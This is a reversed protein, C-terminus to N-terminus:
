RRRQREPVPVETEWTDGNRRGTRVHSGHSKATRQFSETTDLLAKEVKKVSANAGIKTLLKGKLGYKNLPSPNSERRRWWEYFLAKNRLM